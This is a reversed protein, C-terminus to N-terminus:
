PQPGRQVPPPREDDLDRSTAPPASEADPASEPASEGSSVVSVGGQPVPMPEPEAPLWDGAPFDIYVFHFGGEGPGTTVTPIAAGRLHMVLVMDRGRRELRARLVPTDFHRTELWRRSNALHIRTNRFIVEVRDATTRVDTRVPETTQVFFRSGGGPQATFGPWTLISARARAGTRRELRRAAPPTGSGPSVGEYGGSGAPAEQASVVCAVPAPALFLSTALAVPRFPLRVSPDYALRRPVRL